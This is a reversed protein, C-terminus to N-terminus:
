SSIRTPSRCALSRRVNAPLWASIAEELLIFHQEGNHGIPVLRPLVTPVQVVAFMQKPGLGRRRELMAALYLGRNHYHPSPHAPDVAM